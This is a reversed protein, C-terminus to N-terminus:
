SPVVGKLGTFTFIESLSKRASEVSYDRPINIREREFWQYPTDSCFQSLKAQEIRRYFTAKAIPEKGIEDRKESLDSFIHSKVELPNAYIREKMESFENLTITPRHKGLHHFAAFAPDYKLWEIGVKLVCNKRLISMEQGM